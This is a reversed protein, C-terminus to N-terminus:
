SSGAVEAVPGSSFETQAMRFKYFEPLYNKEATFDFADNFGNIKSSREDYL